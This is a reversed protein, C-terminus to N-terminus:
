GNTLAFAAITPNDVRLDGAGLQNCALALRVQGPPRRPTVLTRAFGNTAASSTNTFQSEGLHQGLPPESGDVRIQCNGNAPAGQSYSAGTAVVLARGPRRLSLTVAACDVFTEDTPNCEQEETGNMASFRRADLTQERVHNGTVAGPKVHKGTVANRKIDKSGIKSAAYAGGGALVGFVAITSMVNAYSIHRRVKVALRRGPRCVPKYSM